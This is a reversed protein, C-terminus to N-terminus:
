IGPASTAWKELVELSIGKLEGLNVGGQLMEPSALIAPTQYQCRQCTPVFYPKKAAPTHVQGRWNHRTGDMSMHPNARGDCHLRRAARNRDDQEGLALMEKGHRIRATQKAELQEAELPGPKKLETVLTTVFKQLQEFSMNVNQQQIEDM